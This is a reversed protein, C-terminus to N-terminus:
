KIKRITKTEGSVPDSVLIEAWRGRQHKQAWETRRWRKLITTYIEFRATRDIIYAQRKVFIMLHGDDGDIDFFDIYGRSMPVTSFIADEFDEAAKIGEALEPRLSTNISPRGAFLTDLERKTQESLVANDPKYEFLSFIAGIIGILIIAGFLVLCGGAFRENNSWQPKM